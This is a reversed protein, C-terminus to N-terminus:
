LPFESRMRHARYGGSRKGVGAGNTDPARDCGEHHHAPASYGEEQFTGTNRSENQLSTTLLSLGPPICSLM